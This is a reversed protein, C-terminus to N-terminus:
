VSWTSGSPGDQVEVGLALLEERAADARAWDKDARAAQRAQMLAEVKATDLGIRAVKLGRRASLYASPERGFVGLIRAVTELDALMRAVSARHKKRKKGPLDLLRNLESLPASLAALAAATNLDDHMARDVGGLMELIAKPVDAQPQGEGAGGGLFERARALTTYVYAVRDDAEELGPFRVRARLLEKSSQHGCAGCRAAEQQAPTLPADCEPCSVEVDFNIASRYHVGLLFYRVVEPHYLATVERITFFNGLSKSMKEGAFNVFGNHVWYRAYSQEGHAGQSQAIENEHHPFILDRGGLHIDFTAGLHQSSMASCEIHWG